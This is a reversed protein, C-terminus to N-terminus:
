DDSGSVSSPTRPGPCSLRGDLSPSFMMMNVSKLYMKPNGVRHPKSVGKFDEKGANGLLPPQPSPSVEAVRGKQQIFTGDCSRFIDDGAHFMLSIRPKHSRTTYTDLRALVERKGCLVLYVPSSRSRDVFSIRVEM